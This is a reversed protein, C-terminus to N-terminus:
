QRPIRGGMQCRPFPPSEGLKIKQYTSIGQCTLREIEIRRERVTNKRRSASIMGGVERTTGRRPLNTRNVMIRSVKLIQTVTTTRLMWKLDGCVWVMAGQILLTKMWM